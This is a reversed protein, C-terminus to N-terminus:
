TIMKYKLIQFLNQYCQNINHKKQIILLKVGQFIIQCIIERLKQELIFLQLLFKLLAQNFYM